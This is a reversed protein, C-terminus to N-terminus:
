IKTITYTKSALKYLDIIARMEADNYRLSQPVFVIFDANETGTEDSTYLYWDKDEGETFLYEDLVENETFLYKMDYYVGDGIYIRRDSFDFRDNLAKELYCIQPTIGLQYMNASRNRGFLGYILDISNMCADLFALFLPHRLLFPTLLRVLRNYNIEFFKSM